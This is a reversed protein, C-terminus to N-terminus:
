MIYLNYEEVLVYINANGVMYNPYFYGEESKKGGEM